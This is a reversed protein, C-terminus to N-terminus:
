QETKKTPNVFGLRDAKDLKAMEDKSFLPYVPAPDKPWKHRKIVSYVCFQSNYAGYKVVMEKLLDTLYPAWYLGKKMAFYELNLLGTNSHIMDPSCMDLRM